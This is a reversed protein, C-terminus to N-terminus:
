LGELGVYAVFYGAAIAGAFLAGSELVVKQRRDPHSLAHAAIPLVTLFMFVEGVPIYLACFDGIM